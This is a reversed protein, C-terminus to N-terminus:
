AEDPYVLGWSRRMGDMLEMIDRTERLPIVASEVDGRDLCSVVEEVEYVFGNEEQDVLIEEQRIIDNTGGHMRVTITGGGPFGPFELMGLTGYIVARDNMLLNFSTGIQAAAGSPFSLLYSATEDVGLSNFRCLSRSTEPIEAAMCCCFSLPYIGLDLTAGGALAPDNLRREFMPPVFKGFNVDIFRLEGITGGAVLERIKKWSPLFRTWIAEMVFLGRRGAEAIIEDAQPASVTFPKEILLHKGHKLAEMANGHHFNHTTAVYVIDVDPDTLLEGYTGHRAAGNEAAFSAARERSKSGVAVLECRETRKLADAMKRAIIGAGMIGWGYSKKM